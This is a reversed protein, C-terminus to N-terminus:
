SKPYAPSDLSFNANAPRAILIPPANTNVRNIRVNSNSTVGVSGAVNAPTAIKNTTTANSAQRRGARRALPNLGM